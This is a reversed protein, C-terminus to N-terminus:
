ILDPDIGMERLKQALREAREAGTPIPKGEKDCWRLWLRKVDEEFEGEWLMVGLGVGELWV